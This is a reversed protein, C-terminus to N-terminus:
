NPRKTYASLLVHGDSAGDQGPAAAAPATSKLHAKFGELLRKMDANLAPNARNKEIARTLDEVAGAFDDEAARALGRAFTAYPEADTATAFPKWTDLAEEVKGGVLFFLGLQFRAPHLKPELRLAAQFEAVARDNLGIQAYEAALLFHAIPNSGSHAVARKLYEMADAHRQKKSAEMALHILEQDDLVKTNAEAM